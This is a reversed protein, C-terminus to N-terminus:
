KRKNTMFIAYGSNSEEDLKMDVFRKCLLYVNEECYCNTYKNEKKNFISKFTREM